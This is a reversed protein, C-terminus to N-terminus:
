QVPTTPQAELSRTAAEILGAVHNIAQDAVSSALEGGFPGLKATLFAHAAMQVTAKFGEIDTVVAEGAQPSLPTGVRRKIYGLTYRAWEAIDGREVDHLTKSLFSM